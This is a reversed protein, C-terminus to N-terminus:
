YGTNKDGRFQSGSGTSGSGSNIKSTGEPESMEVDNSGCVRIDVRRNMYAEKATNKFTPDTDEYSVKLRSRDIGYKDVLYDAVNKARVYALAEKNKSTSNSDVSGVVAICLDPCMNMVTAVHHLHGYYEPKVNAKNNDFHVMPLFWKGCDSYSSLRADILRNIDDDTVCCEVKAVGHDDIAYGAPSFPEKDLYDPIGDGDSDLTVGRTDVIAGAPSNPEQDLLDIVGDGDSDTLDFIPRQKLEAIDNMQVNLPNVWYLPETVKNFNGLNIGLRLNTYHAIDNNNTMDNATRFRIGDLMDNDSLMVQHEIGLNIRKSLKRSVGVSATFVVHINTEDGLRFIGKKKWSPTEYTNDYINDLQKKIDKRGAKTDFDNNNAIASLGSYPQGNGDLLNLKTSFNSLGVGLATYVNWKNQDKHFLINGINLIGQMAIYGYNTKYAPFWGDQGAYASFVDEVLGGGKSSHTWMQPDLGRTQGYLFDGRLSFTYNVAKRLHLGVGYGGLIRTDVDGDIFFHGGHIGLEWASKPKPSFITNGSKWDNNNNMNLSTIVVNQEETDGNTEQAYGIASFCILLAILKFKNMM